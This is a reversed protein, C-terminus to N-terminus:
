LNKLEKILEILKSATVSPNVRDPAYYHETFVFEDMYDYYFFPDSKYIYEGRSIPRDDNKVIHYNLYDICKKGQENKTPLSLPLPYTSLSSAGSALIGIVEFNRNFIPSGSQGGQAMHSLKFADQNEFNLYTMGEFHKLSYGMPYGATYISQNPTFGELDSSIPLIKKDTTNRKLKILAWDEGDFGGDFRGIVYDCSYVDEEPINKIRKDISTSEVKKSDIGFVWKSNLCSLTQGNVRLGAAMCHGATALINAEVLFATCLGYTPENIELLGFREKNREMSCYNEDKPNYFGRTMNFSKKDPKLIYHSGDRKLNKSAVQMAISKVLDPRISDINNLIKLDTRAHTVVPLAAILIIIKYFSM